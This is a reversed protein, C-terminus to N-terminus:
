KVYKSVHLPECKPNHEWLSFFALPCPWNRALEVSLCFLNVLAGMFLSSQHLPGPKPMIVQMLFGRCIYTFELKKTKGAPLGTLSIVLPDDVGQIILICIRGPVVIGPSGFFSSNV